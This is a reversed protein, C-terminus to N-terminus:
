HPRRPGLSEGEEQDYYQVSKVLKPTPRAPVKVKWYYASYKPPLGILLRRLKDAPIAQYQGCNTEIREEIPHPYNRPEKRWKKFADQKPITCDMSPDWLEGDGAEILIEEHSMQQRAKPAAREEKPAPQARPKPQEQAKPKPQEQAKPKPQEQAKPKAQEAKPTAKPKPQEQSTWNINGNRPNRLHIVSEDKVWASADTVRRFLAEATTKTIPYKAEEIKDPHVILQLDRVVKRLKSPETGEEVGLVEYWTKAKAIRNLIDAVDKPVKAGAGGKRTFFRKARLNRTRM